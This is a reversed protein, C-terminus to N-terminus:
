PRRGCVFCYPKGNRDYHLPRSCDPCFGLFRCWWRWWYRLRLKMTRPNM